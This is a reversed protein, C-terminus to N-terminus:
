VAKKATRRRKSRASKKPDDVVQTLAGRLLELSKLGKPRGAKSKELKRIERDLDEIANCAEAAFVQRLEERIESPKKRGIM